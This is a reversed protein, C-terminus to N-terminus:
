FIEHNNNFVNIDLLQKVDKLVTSITDIGEDGDTNLNFGLKQLNLCAKSAYSIRLLGAQSFVNGYLKLGKLNQNGSTFSILDDM